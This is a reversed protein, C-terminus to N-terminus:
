AASRVTRGTSVIGLVSAERIVLLERGDYEVDVGSHRDFLVVDGVSVSVPHVVGNQDREGPGVAVVTGQQPREKAVDPIYLGGATRAKEVERAVIIRDQLPKISM